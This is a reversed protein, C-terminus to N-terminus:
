VLQLEIGSEHLGLDGCQEASADTILMHIRDLGCIRVFSRQGFKSRDVLLVVRKATSIMRRKIEAIELASETLGTSSITHAGLFLLDVHIDRLLSECAPGYLTNSNPRATGGTVIVSGTPAGNLVQAIALDNTIATIALGQKIVARAAEMVTSSSDFMVSQGDLILRAAAAGIRQKAEPNLQEAVQAPPEYTSSEMRTSVVGGHIRRVNGSRASLELLDRRITSESAGTLETLTSLSASDNGRLHNLILAHREPALLQRKHNEMAIGPEFIPTVLGPM